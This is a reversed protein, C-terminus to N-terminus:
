DARLGAAKVVQRWREVDVRLVDGFQEPTTGISDFGQAALREQVDPLRLVRVIDAHLKVVVDKPIGAPGLFGYWTSAEFGPYGLEAITPVDPATVLRSSGTVALARLKGAKVHPFSSVPNNFMLDVQGGLLDNTAPAAGKYPVHVMATGTALRFMEAALHTMTGNGASAYKLQGPRSRALTVLEAVSAAPVSPHTVLVLMYSAIESIPTFDKVPDYPLSAYLGANITHSNAILLLTYGDPAAKAVIEAGINGGAGARNEVVVPQGWSESLKQGFLRGLVDAPGGPPFPVILRVPKAPYAQAHLAGIPIISVGAILAVLSLTAAWRKARSEEFAHSSKM